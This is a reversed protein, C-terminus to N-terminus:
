GGPAVEAVCADDGRARTGAVHLTAGSDFAALMGRWIARDLACVRDPDAQALEEFPCACARITGGGDASAAFGYRSLLGVVEAVADADVRRPRTGGREAEARGVDYGFEYGVRDLVRGPDAGSSDAAAKLLLSALLEYRRAPLAVTREDEALRYTKAPRGPGPRADRAFEADLFGLGVLKDLHHGALRRDIGLEAAVDDKRLPRGAQRVAFFVRRRTPDGLAAALRAIEEETRDPGVHGAPAAAVTDSM